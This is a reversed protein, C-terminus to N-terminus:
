ATVLMDERTISEKRGVSCRSPLSHKQLLAISEGLDLPDKTKKIENLVSALDFSQWANEPIILSPIPSNRTLKRWLRRPLSLTGVDIIELDLGLKSAITRARSVLGKQADDLLRESIIARKSIKSSSYGSAFVSSSSYETLLVPRSKSEVVLLLKSKGNTNQVQSLANM